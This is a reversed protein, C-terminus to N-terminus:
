QTIKEVGSNADTEPWSVDLVAAIIKMGDHKSEFAAAQEQLTKLIIEPKHPDKPRTGLTRPWTTKGYFATLFLGCERNEDLLYKQGLQERLGTCWEPNDSWKVEIIVEAIGSPYMSSKIQIDTRRFYSIETERDLVKGPLRDSLRCEIYSQLAKEELHKRQEKPRKSWLMNLHKSCDAGIQDITEKLVLLLDNDSRIIRYDHDTLARIVQKASPRVDSLSFHSSPLTLSATLSDASANAKAQAYWKNITSYKSSLREMWKRSASTNRDFLRRLISDRLERLEDEITLMHAGDHSPDGDPPLAEYLCDALLALSEDSWGAPEITTRDGSLMSFARVDTLASLGHNQFDESLWPIATDPENLLIVGMAASRLQSEPHKRSDKYLTLSLEVAKEPSKSALLELVRARQATPNKCERILAAVGDSLIDTWSDSPIKEASYYDRSDAVNDQIDKLFIASTVASDVRFCERFVEELDQVAPVFVVPLWRRILQSTLSFADVGASVVRCFCQAEFITARSFRNRDGIPTPEFESLAQACITLIRKQIDSPLGSWSGVVGAPPIDREQFCLHSLTWMKQQISLEVSELAETAEELLPRETERERNKEYKEYRKDLQTHRRRNRDFTELTDPVESKALRRALLRQTRTVAPRYAIALLDVWVAPEYKAFSVANEFLWDFDDDELIAIGWRRYGSGPEKRKKAALECGKKYTTRRVARSERIAELLHGLVAHSWAIEKEQLLLETLDGLASEELSREELATRVAHVYPNKDMDTSYQSYVDELQDSDAPRRIKKAVVECADEYTMSRIIQSNLMATADIMEQNRKPAWRAADPMTIAKADLLTRILNAKLRRSLPRNPRSHRVSGIAKTVWVAPLDKPLLATAVNRIRISEKTDISVRLVLQYIRDSSAYGSLRLLIDKAKESTAHNAFRAELEDALIGSDLRSLGAEDVHYLGFPAQAALDELRNLYEATMERTLPLMDNTPPIGGWQEVLWHRVSSDDTLRHLLELLGQHRVQILGNADGVLTRLSILPFQVLYLAALLDRINKQRFRYQEGSYTFLSSNVVDHVAQSNESSDLPLSSSCEELTLDASRSRRTQIENVDSLACIAGIFKAAELQQSLSSRGTGRRKRTRQIISEIVGMLADQSSIEEDERQGCLYEIVAPLGALGELHNNQILSLCKQFNDGAITAANDRNLPLLEYVQFGEALISRARDVFGPPIEALRGFMVLTLKARHRSQLSGIGEIIANSVGKEIDEGEELSDIMWLARDAPTSSKWDKWWDPFLDSRPSHNELNSSFFYESDYFRREDISCKDSFHDSLKNAVHSKGTWPPAVILVFRSRLIEEITIADFAPDVFGHGDTPCDAMAGSECSLFNRSTIM